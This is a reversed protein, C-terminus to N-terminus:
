IMCLDPMGAHKVCGDFSNGVGVRCDTRDVFRALLRTVGEDYSSVVAVRLLHDVQVGSGGVRGMRGVLDRENDRSWLLIGLVHERVVLVPLLSSFFTSQTINRRRHQRQKSELLRLTRKIIGRRKRAPQM